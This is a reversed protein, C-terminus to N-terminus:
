RFLGRLKDGLKALLTENRQPDPLLRLEVWRRICYLAVPILIFALGIAAIGFWTSIGENSGSDLTAFAMNMLCLHTVTFWLLCNNRGAVRLYEKAPGQLVSAQEKEAKETLRVADDLLEDTKSCFTESEVWANYLAKKHVDRPAINIRRTNEFETDMYSLKQKEANTKWEMTQNKIASVSEELTQVRHKPTWEFRGGCSRLPDACRFVAVCFNVVAFPVILQALIGTGVWIMWKNVKAEPTALVLDRIAGSDFCFSVNGAFVFDDDPVM